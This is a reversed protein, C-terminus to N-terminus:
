VSLFSISNIREMLGSLSYREIDDIYKLWALAKLQGNELETDVMDTFIRSFTTAFNTGIGTSEQIQSTACVVLNNLNKGFFISDRVHSKTSHMIPKLHYDLCELMKETPTGCNSIVPHVPVDYLRKHM